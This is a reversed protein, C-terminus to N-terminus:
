AYQLLADSDSRPRQSAMGVEVKGSGSGRGSASASHTAGDVGQMRNGGEVVAGGTSISHKRKSRSAVRSSKRSGATTQTVTATEEQSASGTM